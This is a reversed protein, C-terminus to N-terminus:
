HGLPNDPRFLDPDMPANKDERYLVAICGPSAPHLSSRWAILYLTVIRSSM